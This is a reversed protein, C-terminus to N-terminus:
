FFRLRWKSKGSIVKLRWKPRDQVVEIMMQGVRLFKLQYEIKTRLLV